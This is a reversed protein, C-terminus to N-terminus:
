NILLRNEAIYAMVKKTAGKNDYVYEKAAKGSQERKEDNHFLMTVIKELEPTNKFTFAAGCHVLGKAESFKEYVPGFLLPCGFVAAELVNHIGSSNFGGGIYAVSAYKYLRSLMGINDIILTNFHSEPKLFFESYFISHPILKKLEFLSEADIVHPAIIFKINANSKIFHLIHTEDQPWTSGALLVKNGKCFREIEPLGTFNEAGDIVRDFRTDGAVSVNQQLYKEVLLLSAHDQLFVHTFSPLMNRWFKGYWKFFPQSDRFIGSILLVPIKRKKLEVLYYHWFEYKIWLVLDPKIKDLFAAANKKGDMPLYFVEVGRFNKRIEFGSPSFFTIILKYSPYYEQIKEILPRGQEFEGLSACHMWVVSSTQQPVLNKRGTVWLLAKQNWLSSVRIASTYFFLFLNYFFPNM